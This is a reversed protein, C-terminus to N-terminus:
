TLPCIEFVEQLMGETYQPFHTQFLKLLQPKTMNVREYSDEELFYTVIKERYGLVSVIKDGLYAFFVLGNFPPSLHVNGVQFFIKWTEVFPHWLRKENLWYNVQQHWKQGESDYMVHNGGLTMPSQACWTVQDGSRFFKSKMYNFKYTPSEKEFDLPIAGCLPRRTGPDVLHRSGPYTVDEVITSIHTDNTGDGPNNGCIHHTKYGLADLLAKTFPNIWFCTGGQLTLMHKKLMDISYHWLPTSKFYNINTFPIVRNIKDIVNDLLQLPNEKMAAEPDHIGLKYKVFYLAEEKTLPYPIDVSRGPKASDTVFKDRDGLSSMRESKVKQYDRAQKTTMQSMQLLRRAHPSKSEEM